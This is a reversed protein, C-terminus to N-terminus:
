ESTKQFINQVTPGSDARTDSDAGSDAGSDTVSDSDAGSDARSDSDAGFDFDAEFRLRNRRRSLFLRKPGIISFLSLWLSDFNVKLRDVRM